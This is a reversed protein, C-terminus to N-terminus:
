NRLVITVKKKGEQHPALFFLFFFSLSIVSIRPKATFCGAGAVGFGDGDALVGDIWPAQPSGPGGLPVGVWWARADANAYDMVPIDGSGNIYQGADDKLWWSPNALFAAKPAGYCQLGGQDVAWYFVVRAAPNHAKVLRANAWVVEETNNSGSCKEVSVGAYHSALFAADADTYPQYGFDAFQAQLLNDWGHTWDQPPPPLSSSSSLSVPSAASTAAGALLLLLLLMTSQLLVLCFCFGFDKVGFVFLGSLQQSGM